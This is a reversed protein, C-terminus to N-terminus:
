DQPRRARRDPVSLELLLRLRPVPSSISWAISSRTRQNPKTPRASYRASLMLITRLVVQVLQLSGFVFVRGVHWRAYKLLYSAYLETLSKSERELYHSNDLYQSFFEDLQSDLMSSIAAVTAGLSVYPSSSSPKNEAPDSGENSPNQTVAYSEFSNTAVRSASRFIDHSKLHDILQATSSRALALIRLFVLTSSGQAATLLKEIHTQIVQAFVRELFVRMVVAPQPFVAEIIQAEQSIQDRIDSYLAALEPESRPAPKNPDALAEWM